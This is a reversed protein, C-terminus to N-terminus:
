RFGSDALGGLLDDRTLTVGSENRTGFVDPFREDPLPVALLTCNTWRCVDKAGPGYQVYWGHDTMRDADTADCDEAKEREWEEDTTWWERREAVLVGFGKIRSDQGMYQSDQVVVVDGVQPHTLRHYIRKVVPAADGVLTATRLHFTLGRLLDRVPIASDELSLLDDTRETGVIGEHPRRYTETM